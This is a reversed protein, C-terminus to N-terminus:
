TNDDSDEPLPRVLMFMGEGEEFEPLQIKGDVVDFGMREYNEALEPYRKASLSQGTCEKWCRPHRPSFPLLSGDPYRAVPYICGVTLSTSPESM